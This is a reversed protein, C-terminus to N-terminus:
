YRCGARLLTPANAFWTSTVSGAGYGRLRSALDEFVARNYGPYSKEVVGLPNLLMLTASTQVHMSRILARKPDAIV